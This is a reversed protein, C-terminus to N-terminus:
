RGQLREDHSLIEDVVEQVRVPLGDHVGDRRRRAERQFVLNWRWLRSLGEDTEPPTVGTISGDEGRSALSLVCKAIAVHELYSIPSSAEPDDVYDALESPDPISAFAEALVAESHAVTVAERGPMSLAAHDGPMRVELESVYEPDDPTRGEVVFLLDPALVVDSTPVTAELVVESHNYAVHADLTMNRLVSTAGVPFATTEPDEFARRAIPALEYPQLGRYLSVTDDFEERLYRRSLERLARLTEIAGESSTDGYSAHFEPCTATECLDGDHAHPRLPAGIDFAERATREHLVADTATADFKWEVIRGVEGRAGLRLRYPPIEGPSDIIRTEVFERVRSPDLATYLGPRATARRCLEVWLSGSLEVTVGEVTMTGDNAVFVYDVNGPLKYIGAVDLYANEGDDPRFIEEVVVNRERGGDGDM